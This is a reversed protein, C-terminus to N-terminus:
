RDNVGVKGISDRERYEPLSRPVLLFLLDWEFNGFKKGSYESIDCPFEVEVGRGGWGNLLGLLRM